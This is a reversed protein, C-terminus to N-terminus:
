RPLVTITQNCTKKMGNPGFFTFKYIRTEPTNIQMAQEGNIPYMNKPDTSYSPDAGFSGWAITFPEGAHVITKTAIVACNIPSGSLIAELAAIRTLLQGWSPEVGYTTDAFAFAPVFLM